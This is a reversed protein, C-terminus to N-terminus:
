PDDDLLAEAAPEENGPHGMHGPSWVIQAAQPPHRRLLGAAVEGVSGATFNRVAGQSDSIITAKPNCTIALAIAVEEAETACSVSFSAKTVIKSGDSTAVAATAVGSVPGAADVYLTGPRSDWTRALEESSAMRREADRSPNMNRPIRSTRVGARIHDDLKIQQQLFAANPNALELKDLLWRGSDTGGLRRIQAGIQANALEEFTNHVGLQLLRKTAGSRRGPESPISDRSPLSDRATAHAVENGPHGMHGPSWVIQAAQPPHRRLLGAAVEGVSGATFNRVAGQSDSIITAKPNCTIALAIAVEEAETACSVRFSAKTVIKSGDSTAVAATAVGSVPGAADVYLTGPRSDWTRALEESRAMRREADRSPNMNRPIRSTRVGARIHDDLKIQQQLFAANPNALELKDLLWRGSDTGGLRRIQAGIQANALEEFTNHVGLQLLRKTAAYEPLGLANKYAKRLLVDLKEVEKKTLNLHPPGYLVRSVVFAHVLQMAEREKLGHQQNRIRRLMGNIQVTAKTLKDLTSKNNRGQPILQGLIRVEQPKPVEQGDMKVNIHTILGERPNRLVLLESKEPTFQLGRSWAYEATIDAAAQLREEVQGDSGCQMPPTPSTRDQQRSKWDRLRLKTVWSPDDPDAGDARLGTGEEPRRQLRAPDIFSYEM